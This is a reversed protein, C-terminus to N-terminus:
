QTPPVAAPRGPKQRELRALAEAAYHRTVLDDTTIVRRLRDITEADAPLPLLALTRAAAQRAARDGTLARNLARVSLKAANSLRFWEDIRSNVPGGEDDAPTPDNPM